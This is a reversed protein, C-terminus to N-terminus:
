GQCGGGFLVGQGEVVVPTEDAEPMVVVVQPLHRSRRLMDLTGRSPWNSHRFAYVREIDPHEDLMRQNRVLGAAVGDREWDAMVVIPEPWGLSAAVKGAMTDAGQAGGHVLQTDPPLKAFERAIVSRWKWVRSGCALIKM